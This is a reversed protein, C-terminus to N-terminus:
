TSYKKLHSGLDRFFDDSLDAELCLLNSNKLVQESGNQVRKLVKLFKKSSKLKKFSTLDEQDKKFQQTLIKGSKFYEERFPSEYCEM